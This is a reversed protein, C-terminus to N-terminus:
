KEEPILNFIQQMYIICLILQALTFLPINYWLRIYWLVALPGQLFIAWRLVIARPVRHVRLLNFFLGVTAAVCFDFLFIFPIIFLSCFFAAARLSGQLIPQHQTLFEPTTTASFTAPLPHKQVASSGPLYVSNKVVMALLNQNLLEQSTPPTQRSADFAIKLSNGPLYAYVPNQPATLVGKEFTVQPFNKLFVPLNKKLYGGAFWNFVLLWLMGLYVGFGLIHWRTAGSLRHYIRFSFITQLHIWLM